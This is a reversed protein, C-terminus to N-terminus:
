TKKQSSGVEDTGVGSKTPAIANVNYEKLKGKVQIVNCENPSPFNTPAERDKRLGKQHKEWNILQIAEEGSPTEYWVIFGSEVWEEIFGRVMDPTVERRRPFLTSALYVPDGIIRGECDALTILYVYALRCTDSSLENIGRDAIIDNSIFRGRAM